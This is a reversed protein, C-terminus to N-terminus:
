GAVRTRSLIGAAEASLAELRRQRDQLDNIQLPTGAQDENATEMLNRHRGLRHQVNALESEISDLKKRQESAIGELEEDLLKM